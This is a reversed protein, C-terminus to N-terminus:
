SLAEWRKWSEMPGTEPTTIRRFHHSRPNNCWGLTESVVAKGDESVRRMGGWYACTACRGTVEVPTLFGGPGAM